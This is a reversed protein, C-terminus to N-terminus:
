VTRGGVGGKGTEERKWGGRARAERMVSVKMGRGRKRNIGGKKEEEEGRIKAQGEKYIVCVHMRACM